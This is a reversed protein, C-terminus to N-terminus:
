AHRCPAVDAPEGVLVLVDDEEPDDKGESNLADPLQVPLGEQLMPTIVIFIILLVLMVDVYPVVNIESM